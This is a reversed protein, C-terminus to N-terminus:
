GISGFITVFLDAAASDTGTAGIEIIDGASFVYSTSSAFTGTTSGTSFTCTGIATSNFYIKVVLDGDAAPTEIRGQSGTFNAPITWDRTLVVKTFIEDGVSITDPRYVGVAYPKTSSVGAGKNEVLVFEPGAEYLNITYTAADPVDLTTTAGSTTDLTITGGSNNRIIFTRDELPTQLTWDGTSGALFNFVKNRYFENQSGLTSSATPLTQTTGGFTSTTITYTRNESAAYVRKWENFRTVGTTSAAVMDTSKIVDTQAM